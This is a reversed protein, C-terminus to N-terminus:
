RQTILNRERLADVGNNWISGEAWMYYSFYSINETYLPLWPQLECYSYHADRNHPLNMWM